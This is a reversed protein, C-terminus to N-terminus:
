DEHRYKKPTYKAKNRKKAMEMGIQMADLISQISEPSAPQGDFMLGEEQMLKEKMDDMMRTIEREDKPTLDPLDDSAPAPSQELSVLQEKDVTRMLIDVSTSMAKAVSQYTLISPIIPKGTKPNRNKELMSIYGKSLGSRKAFEDMSLSHETRYTKIVDGLTM